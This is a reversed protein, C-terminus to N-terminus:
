RGWGGGSPNWGAGSRASDPDRRSQEAIFRRQEPTLGTRGPRISLAGQNTGGRGNSVAHFVEGDAARMQQMIQVAEVPSPVAGGTLWQRVPVAGSFILAGCIMPVVGAIVRIVM